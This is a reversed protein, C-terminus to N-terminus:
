LLYTRIAWAVGEEENGPAVATAQRKVMDPANGMAIGLRAVTFMPLDVLNDGIAMAQDPEIQLRELVLRLASGKEAQAPFIGLSTPQGARDLFIEARCIGRFRHECLAQLGAIAEPQHALIRVPSGVVMETNTCVVTLTPSRPGPQEDPRRRWYTMGGVSVSLEWNNADALCTLEIAAEQPIVWDSWLPGDPSAWVQAGNNCIMPDCIGLQRCYERTSGPNRATAPVVRVGQRAVQSLLEAGQVALEHQGTLLTGDLDVAILSIGRLPM